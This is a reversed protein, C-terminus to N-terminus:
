EWKIRKSWFYWQIEYEGTVYVDNCVDVAVSNIRDTKNSGIGEGYGIEDKDMKFIFWGMRMLLYLLHDM